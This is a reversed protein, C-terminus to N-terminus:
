EYVVGAASAAGACKSLHLTLTHPLNHSWMTVGSTTQTHRLHRSRTWQTTTTCVCSCTTRVVCWGSSAHLSSPPASQLTDWDALCPLCAPLLVFVVACWAPRDTPRDTLLQGPCEETHARSGQQSPPQLAATPCSCHSRATCAAPGATSHQDQPAAPPQWWGPLDTVEFSKVMTQLCLCVLVSLRSYLLATLLARHINTFEMSDLVIWLPGRVLLWCSSRRPLWGAARSCVCQDM